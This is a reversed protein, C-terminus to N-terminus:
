RPPSRMSGNAMIGPGGPIMVSAAQVRKLIGAHADGCTGYRFGIRGAVGQGITSAAQNMVGKTNRLAFGGSKSAHLRSARKSSRSILCMPHPM